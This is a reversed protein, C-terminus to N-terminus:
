TLPLAVISSELKVEVWHELVIKQAKSIPSEVGIGNFLLEIIALFPRDSTGVVVYPPSDTFSASEEANAPTVTM